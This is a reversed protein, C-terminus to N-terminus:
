CARALANAPVCFSAPPSASQDLAHMVEYAAELQRTYARTDFLPGDSRAWACRERLRAMRTPDNALAIALARYADLDACVLEALGAAHLVSAAVRSSFSDGSCTILPLGTGIADSATTHANVFHTDLFLDGLSMRALHQNRPLASAFILRGAEIGRTQAAAVLNARAEEPDALIWMVAGPVARLIDMWAAFVRPEIKYLSNFSCFVFGTDPLGASERTPVGPTGRRTNDTPQYTHPLYVIRESFFQEAGAPVVIPDAILYDIFDAAVSGPYGLYSVQVPAPRMAAIEPRGAGAYGNLDILIDVGDDIVRQAVRLPAVAVMDHFRDFLAVVEERVASGDRHGLSYAVLEFRTHDHSALVGRLLHMTPHNHFDASVYGLRIRAGVARRPRRAFELSVSAAREQMLKGCRRAAEYRARPSVPVCDAVAPAFLPMSPLSKGAASNELIEVLAATPYGWDCRSARTMYGLLPITTSEPDLEAARRLCAPGDVDPLLSELGALAIWLQALEHPELENPSAIARQLVGFAAFPDGLSLHIEKLNHAVALLEPSDSAAAVLEARADELRGCRWLALGLNARIAANAPEFEVARAIVAVAASHNGQQLEILGILHLAQANLPDLALYQDLMRRAAEIRGGQIMESVKAFDLSGTATAAASGFVHRYLTKLM